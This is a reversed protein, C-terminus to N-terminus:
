GIEGSTQAMVLRGGFDVIRGDDWEIVIGKHVPNTSDPSLILREATRFMRRMLVDCHDIAAIVVSNNQPEANPWVFGVQGPLIVKNMCDGDAIIAYADPDGDAVWKPCM